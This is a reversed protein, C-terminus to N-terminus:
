NVAVFAEILVVASEEQVRGTTALVPSVVQEQDCQKVVSGSRLVKLNLCASNALEM